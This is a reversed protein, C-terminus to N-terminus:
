PRVRFLITISMPFLSKEAPRVYVTHLRNEHEDGELGGILGEMENDANPQDQLGNEDVPFVFHLCDDAFVAITQWWWSTGLCSGHICDEVREISVCM